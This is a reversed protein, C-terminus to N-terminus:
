RMTLYFRLALPALAFAILLAFVAANHLAGRLLAAARSSHSSPARSASADLEALANPDYATMALRRVLVV